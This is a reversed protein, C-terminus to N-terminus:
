KKFTVVTVGASGENWNGIRWSDVISNKSLYHGIKMRLAGSGKGHIIHATEFGANRVSPLFSELADGAEDFTMGRLDIENSSPAQTSVSINIRQPKIKVPNESLTLEKSDVIIAAKSQGVRIRARNGGDLVEEVVADSGFSDHRVVMGKVLKLIVLNKRSLKKESIEDAKKETEAALNKLTEKAEIIVSHTAGSDKITKIVAEINKNTESIIKKSEELAASLLEKKRTSFEETNKEYEKRVKELMDREEEAAKREQVALRHQEEMETILGELSKRETGALNEAEHMVEEPMGMRSAIEFAYSSGPIGTKFVFTPRLNSNDFEMSANVVGETEHAYVKLGDHHTTALTIAGASTLKKLVALAIAEGDSPNTGGGLEDLIVLTGPRANTLIKVINKMHSSFTSLDDEISQEDGIDAFFGEPAYIVSDPSAPVPIGSLGLLMILALTKLAVTKGGANPGTIVMTKANGGMRIDLPVVKSGDNQKRFRWDLLPHRGKRIYLEHDDSIEPISCDLRVGFRAKAAITDLRALITQNSELEPSIGALSQTLGSLIRFIEAKEELELERVQNNGEITDLPEIFLTRGTQSRDHVAGPVSKKMNDRIPIVFRGDRLTVIRESVIEDPLSALTKEVTRRLNNLTRQIKRRIELLAPSADDAIELNPTIAKRIRRVIDTHISVNEAIEWIGPYKVRRDGYYNNIDGAIELNDALAAIDSIDLMNGPIKLSKIAEGTDRLPISPPVEDFRIANMMESSEALKKRAKAPNNEPMIELVAKKGDGSDAFGSIIELAKSFELVSLAHTDYRARTNEKTNNM